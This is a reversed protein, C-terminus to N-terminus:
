ALLCALAASATEGIQVLFDTAMDEGFRSPDSSGLILLGFANPAAGTRLPLLAVSAVSEPDDLLSVAEFEKNRGCYPTPLGDAFLRMDDPVAEAFWTHSYAESVTWMRLTAQPVSFITKLGDVLIHPLDVDNRALLLSRTWKQFKSAIAENEQATHLLESLRMELLRYKERMVEM